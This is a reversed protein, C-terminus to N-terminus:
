AGGVVLVAFAALVGRDHDHTLRDHAARLSLWELVDVEDNPEFSGRRVQMAWYRVIKSRGRHDAYTVSPLEDALDCVFGTEEAVERWACDEDSEGADAKGKPFTWDDYRPRRVVVVEVEGSATRRWVVGGAARVEFEVSGGEDIAHRTM